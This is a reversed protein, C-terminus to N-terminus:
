YSNHCLNKLARLEDAYTLASVKGERSFFDKKHEKIEPVADFIFYVRGSSRYTGDFSIGLAKLYAALYLDSTRYDQRVSM